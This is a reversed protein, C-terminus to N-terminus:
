KKPRNKKKSKKKTSKGKKKKPLIPAPPPPPPLEPPSFICERATADTALDRLLHNGGKVELAAIAHVNGVCIRQHRARTLAVNLRRKDKLFGMHGSSGRVCSFIVIDAEGGQISDVTSVTIDGLGYQRLLSNLVDVQGKYGTIIRMKDPASWGHFKESKKLHLLLSVVARAESENYTSQNKDKREVGVVQVWAYPTGSLLMTSSVYEAEKVNEGDKVKGDYFQQMPWHSIEPRMRYQTDLLTFDFRTGFM